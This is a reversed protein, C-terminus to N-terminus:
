MLIEFIEAYLYFFNGISESVFMHHGIMHWQALAHAERNAKKYCNILRLYEIPNLM